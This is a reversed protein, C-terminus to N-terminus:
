KLVTWNRITKQISRHIVQNFSHTLQTVEKSNRRSDHGAHVYCIVRLMVSLEVYCLVRAM